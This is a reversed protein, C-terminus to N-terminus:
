HRENMYMLLQEVSATALARGGSQAADTLLSAVESATLRIM